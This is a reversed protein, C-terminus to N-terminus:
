NLWDARENPRAADLPWVSWDNPSAMSVIKFLFVMSVVNCLHVDIFCMVTSFKFHNPLCSM